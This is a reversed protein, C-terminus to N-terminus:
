SLQLLKLEMFEWKKTFMNQTAFSECYVTMCLKIDILSLIFNLFINEIQGMISYYQSM